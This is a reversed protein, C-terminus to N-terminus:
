AAVREAIRELAARDVAPDFKRAFLKDSALAAPVDNTTLARKHVGEWIHFRLGDNVVEYQSAFDTGVLISHFFLEDPCWTHQHYSRYDPHRALFQLVHQAAVRSLNWHM